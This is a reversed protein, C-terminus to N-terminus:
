SSYTLRVSTNFGRYIVLETDESGILQTAIIIIIFLFKWYSISSYIEHTHLKKM